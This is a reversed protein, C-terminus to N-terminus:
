KWDGTLQFAAWYYPHAFDRSRILDVQAARLAEDKSRGKKLYGYFRKMLDATSDDSVSWLSALVSRAGAFQFARVLGVLGEGGMEKGLGSDCASLTVLDADLRLEEFIEWAQLLGNDRGEEPHGPISFALASNLPFQEDLLGHCAFHIRRAQPALSKIAEESADLGLLSRGGPFLGSIEEVEGRTGPLPGLRLGRKLATQAQPETATEAPPYLPDGVALLELTAAQPKKSRAAKIERYIAASAVIHIPKSEALYRDGSVLAAFPLSHLPGDASILWRDAKALVPEAPRVLLDYLSRGSQKLASPDTDPRGLLNRFGEVEKALDAKGIALPYWSLGPGPVGEAAIVFLFSRTEGISYTLLVTGPDLATRAAALDLTTPSELARIRPSARRFREQVEAQELRLDRLRGQLEEMRESGQEPMWDALEAQVRDYEAALRHREAYLEVPLEGAFRLDRQALLEQFGRARGREVLEWAKQPRALAIQNEAAEFYLDGLPSGYLWQSEQAGGLRTRQAELCDVATLYSAIAKEAQGRRAQLRALAQYSESLLGHYQYKECIQIAARLHAESAERDGRELLLAGLKLHISAADVAEPNIEQWIAMARRLFTEAESDRGQLRMAEALGMLCSASKPGTSNLQESIELAHQWLGEARAGQRQLLALKGLNMLRDRTQSGSSDLKELLALQRRFLSEAADHDGREGAVKGLLYLTAALEDNETNVKELIRKARLFAAEAGAFNGRDLLLEGYNLLNMVLGESEPSFQEQIRLTRALYLEAQELDGRMATTAALNNATAAEAGSGPALRVVLDYARRNMRDAEALDDQGEATVGLRRLAWVVFLSEPQRKEELRLAIELQERAQAVEGRLWLTEWWGMRLYTEVHTATLPRAKALAAQYGADVESWQRAQARLRAAQDRLWLEVGTCRSESALDAARELEQGASAPDGAQERDRAARYAKALEGQLLPAVVLGQVVPLLRWRFNESGRTGELLIGGRQVDEIEIDGFDFPTRLDGRVACGGEADAARCWSLIRDGPMIGALFGGSEPPVTEVVLGPESLPCSVDQSPIALSSSSSVALLCLLAFRFSRNPIM